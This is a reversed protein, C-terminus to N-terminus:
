HRAIDERVGLRFSAEAAQSDQLRWDQHDLGGQQTINFWVLGLLRYAVMGGFLNQIKVFSGALPGVGTESLLIPETTLSRVQAIAPGFLAAFTDSPRDYFGDIGVWSVYQAGPWWPAAPGIGRGDAQITWLWTVDDAGQSRFVTM